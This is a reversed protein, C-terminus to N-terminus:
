PFADTGPEALVVTASRQLQRLPRPEHQRRIPAVTHCPRLCDPPAHALTQALRRRDLITVHDVKPINIVGPSPKLYM